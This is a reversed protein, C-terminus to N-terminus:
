FNESYNPNLNELVPKGDARVADDLSGYLPNPLIFWQKGWKHSHSMVKHDREKKSLTTAPIFDNVGPIAKADAQEVWKSWARSNFSSQELIMRAQFPSNDLVTEDVDLIIAPPLFASNEPQKLYAAERNQKSTDLQRAANNYTM